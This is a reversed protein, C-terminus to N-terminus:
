TTELLRLSQDVDQIKHRMDMVNSNLSQNFLTYNCFSFCLMLHANFLTKYSPSFYVKTTIYRTPNLHYGALWARDFCGSWLAWGLM